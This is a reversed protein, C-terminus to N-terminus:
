MRKASRSFSHRDAGLSRRDPNLVAVAALAVTMVVVMQEDWRAVLNARGSSGGPRKL